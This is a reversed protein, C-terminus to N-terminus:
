GLDVRTKGVSARTNMDAWWRALNPAGALLSEGEPIGAFADYVPVVHLDALSLADGAFCREGALMGDLVAVCTAAKPPADAIVAEDPAQGVMPMVVRQIVCAAIMSPYAHSDVIALVQNMRARLRVDAPQLAIGDFAEDVYRMIPTTEYLAVGDHEFAPVKAFPNRALYEPKRHAGRLLDIEQLRYAQNKEELTLRVSRVYSSFAPGYVIPESM